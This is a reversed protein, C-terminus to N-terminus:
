KIMRVELYGITSKHKVRYYNENFQSLIIVKGDCAQYIIKGLSSDPKDYIASCTFVDVIKPAFKNVNYNNSNASPSKIWRVEMFGITNEYKVKYYKEDYQSILTVKGKCAQEIQNSTGTPKDYISSCSFVEIKTNYYEKSIFENKNLKNELYPKNYSSSYNPHSQDPQATGKIGTYPNVNDISSFNDINISNPDTRYYPRDYSSSYNISSQSPQITGNKGTYPNVNGITSFNDINTSNPATRYYPAVYTGNARYHGNVHVDSSSKRQALSNFSIILAFLFFLIQKM